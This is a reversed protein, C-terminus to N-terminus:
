EGTFRPKRKEVFARAGELGDRSSASEAISRTEREMQSELSDTPAMNLLKKIGGHARTPGQALELALKKAEAMLEAGPVVRNVIGWDLAEKASLTRNTLFIEMARRRGLLRSLFYTSSGDPTFGIHTYASTFKAHEAAIGLDCALALGLGGGAVVGNYAGILPARMWAFRSIATHLAGTMEKVLLEIRESNAAFDAVDGGACFAKEGAGTLVAARVSKDSGCRNAIDCLEQVAKLNIANYAKPRNLTIWAVHDQIDFDIMEYEM